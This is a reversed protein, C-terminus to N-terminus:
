HSSQKPSDSRESCSTTSSPKNATNNTKISANNLEPNINAKKITLESGDVTSADQISIPINVNTSAVSSDETEKVVAKNKYECLTFCWFVFLVILLINKKKNTNSCKTTQPESQGRNIVLTKDNYAFFGHLLHAFVSLALAFTTTFLMYEEIGKAEKIFGINSTIFALFAAFVGLITILQGREKEVKESVDRAVEESVDKASKAAKEATSIAYESDKNILEYYKDSLTKRKAKYEDYFHEIYEINIPTCGCSAYFFLSKFETYDYQSIDSIDPKHRVISKGSDEEYSYFSDQFLLRHQSPVSNKYKLIFKYLNALLGKLLSIQRFLVDRGVNGVELKKGIEIHLEYIAELYFSPYNEQGEIKQIKTIREVINKKEKNVFFPRMKEYLCVGKVIFQNYTTVDKCNSIKALGKIDESYYVNANTKVAFEVQSEIEGSLKTIDKGDVIFTYKKKFYDKQKANLIGYLMKGVKAKAQKLATKLEKDLVKGYQKGLNLQYSLRSYLQYLKEFNEQNAHYCHDILTIDIVGQVIERLLKESTEVQSTSAINNLRIIEDNQVYVLISDENEIIRRIHECTDKARWSSSLIFRILRAIAEPYEYEHETDKGNSKRCHDEIKKLKDSYKDDILYEGNLFSKVFHYTLQSYLPSLSTNELIKKIDADEKSKLFIEDLTGKVIGENDKIQLQEFFYKKVTEDTEQQSNNEKTKNSKLPNNIEQMKQFFDMNEICVKHYNVQNEEPPECIIKEQEVDIWCIDANKPLLFFLKIHKISLANEAANAFYTQITNRFLFPDKEVIQGTLLVLEDIHTKM